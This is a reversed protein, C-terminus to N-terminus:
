ILNRKGEIQASLDVLFEIIVPSDIDPEDWPNKGGSVEISTGRVSCLLWFTLHKYDRRWIWNRVSGTWVQNQKGFLLPFIKRNDAHLAHLQDIIEFQQQKLMSRSWERCGNYNMYPTAGSDQYRPEKNKPL